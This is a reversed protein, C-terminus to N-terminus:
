LCRYKRRYEALPPFRDEPSASMLDKHFGVTLEWDSDQNEGSRSPKSLEFECNLRYPQGVHQHQVDSTLNLFSTSPYNPQAAAFSCFAAAFLVFYLSSNM